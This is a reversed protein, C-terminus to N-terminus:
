ARSFVGFANPIVTNPSIASSRRSIPPNAWRATGALLGGGQPLATVQTFLNQQPSSVRSSMDTRTLQPPIIASHTAIEHHLLHDVLQAVGAPRQPRDRGTHTQRPRPHWSDVLQAQLNAVDPTLELGAALPLANAAALLRDSSSSASEHLSILRKASRRDLIGTSARESRATTM